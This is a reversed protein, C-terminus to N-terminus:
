PLTVLVALKAHEGPHFVLVDDGSRVVTPRM